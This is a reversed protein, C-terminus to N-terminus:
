RRAAARAAIYRLVADDTSTNSQVHVAIDEGDLDDVFPQATEMTLPTPGWHSHSLSRDSVFTRTRPDALSMVFTGYTIFESFDLSGGICDQWRRGTTSEIRTLLQRVVAPDWSVIGAIYDPSDMEQRTLGLLRLAKARQARHRTMDATIGHPLRYLRTVGETDRFMSEDLRGILLVDSDIVVAVDADLASVLALKVIQQLIWGRVPLWPRTANVAAIRLGRPLHPIRALRTAPIFRRPLVDRESVVELRPSGISEFLSVDMEPVVVIHRTSAETHAVVSAHLRFFTEADPRHSTTIIALSM